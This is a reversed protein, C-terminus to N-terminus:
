IVSDLYADFIQSSIETYEDMLKTAWTEYTSYSDGKEYMLDAMEGVGENCIDALKEIKENCLDALRNIDSIGAADSKYERVLSSVKDEMKKVYENYIDEYSNGYSYEPESSEYYGSEEDEFLANYEDYTILYYIDEGANAKGTFPDFECYCVSGDDEIWIIDATEAEYPTRIETFEGDVVELELTNETHLLFAPKGEPHDYPEYTGENIFALWMYTFTGDSNIIFMESDYLGSGAVDVVKTNWTVAGVKWVGEILESGEVKGIEDEQETEEESSIPEEAKEGSNGCACLSFVLTLALMIAIFKKIVLM